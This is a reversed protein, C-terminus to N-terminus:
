ICCEQHIIGLLGVAQDYAPVPLNCIKCLPLRRSESYESLASEFGGVEALFETIIAQENLPRSKIYKVIDM